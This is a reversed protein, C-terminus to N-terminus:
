AASAQAQRSRRTRGLLIFLKCRPDKAGSIWWKRGNIVYDDGDPAISTQINTADSSAVAPETMVFASRIDGALLPLLWHEQQQPTGYRALIEMNGTDPASCNFFESAGLMRGMLEALPAYELNSLGPSHPAYEHPLFLNWLGAERAKAKITETGPWVKWLNAHDHLFHEREVEIPYVHEAMFAELRERLDQVKPSYQFDMASGKKCHSAAMPSLPRAPSSVPSRRPSSCPLAQWIRLRASGASRSKPSRMQALREPHDLTVKTMKTDVLSPAIGNVRIGERAWALALAKVLQVAGAKSAAYAPNAITAKFAGISSVVVVAGKAEALQAHFRESIQMVSSLNVAVVRDFGARQFEQRKYIVAGQSHVLM